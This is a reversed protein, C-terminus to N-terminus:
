VCPLFAVPEFEELGYSKGVPDLIGYGDWAVAHNARGILIGSYRAMLQGITENMGHVVYPTVRENPAQTPALDFYLLYRRNKICYAALEQYHFGRRKLPEPLEPWIIESGDHGLGQIVDKVPVDLVMALAAPLCSWKNPQLRLDM